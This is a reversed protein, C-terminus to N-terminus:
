KLNYIANQVSMMTTTSVAKRLNKKLSDLYKEVQTAKAYASLKNADAFKILMESERLLMMLNNLKAKITSPNVVASQIKAIMNQCELIVEECPVDIHSDKHEQRYKAYYDHITVV